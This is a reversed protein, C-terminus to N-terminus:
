VKAHPWHFAITIQHPVNLTSTLKCFPCPSAFIKERLSGKDREAPQLWNESLFHRNEEKNICFPLYWLQMSYKVMTFGSLMQACPLCPHFWKM